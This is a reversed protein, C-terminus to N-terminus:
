SRTTLSMEYGRILLCFIALGGFVVWYKADSSWVSAGLGNGQTVSTFYIDNAGREVLIANIDRWQQLLFEDRIQNPNDPCLVKDSIDTIASHVYDLFSAGSLNFTNVDTTPWNLLFNAAGPADPTTYMLPTLGQHDQANPDAGADLLYEVFDLNTVVGSFCACHLPTMGDPISVVNINTGLEIIQKALILQRVHTSYDVPDALVALRHLLTVRTEGEGILVDPGVFQLMVLLPSNPWSLMESDSRVLVGLSHFLLFNQYQKTEGKAIKRMELAAARSGEFTSEQFLKFFRKDGEDLYQEGEEFDERLKIYRSTHEDTRVQMSGHGVNLLKCIKKHQKKWDERQCAKSCYLASQCTACYLLMIDPSAVASCIICSKPM